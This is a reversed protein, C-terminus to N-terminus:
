PKGRTLSAADSRSSYESSIIRANRASDRCSSIRGFIEQIVVAHAVFRHPNRDRNLIWRDFLRALAGAVACSSAGRTVTSKVPDEGCTAPLM